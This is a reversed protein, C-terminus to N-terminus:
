PLTLGFTKGLFVSFQARTVSSGPCFLSPSTSCGATVGRRVLEEVWRAFPDSPPVDAFVGVADPPVYTAGDHTRLLFPASQARTVAWSPCFLPPNTSCGATVGRRVLEEVWPAFGSSLPVDQFLGTAPPPVYTPGEKARLLVVASQDRTVAADPCFRLPGTACGGTIGAAYAAEVWKWAWHDVPVDAFTPRRLAFDIGTTTSDLAVAVPTGQTVDCSPECTKNAYLQDVYNQGM